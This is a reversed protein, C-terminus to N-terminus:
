YYENLFSEFEKLVEKLNKRGLGIRIHNGTYNFISGPLLLISKRKVLNKCFEDASFRQNLKPFAVSSGKSEIWTFFDKHRTFFEKVILTNERILNLNRGIIKDKSRLAVISLIESLASNCITTYDKFSEVRKM